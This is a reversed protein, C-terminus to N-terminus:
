LGLKIEFPGFGQFKLKEVPFIRLNRDDEMFDSQKQTSVIFVNAFM